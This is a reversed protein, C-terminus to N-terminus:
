LEVRELDLLADIMREYTARTVRHNSYKAEEFSSVIQRLTNPPIRASAGTLLDFIEWPTADHRIPTITRGAEERFHTFVEAIEARYEVVKVTRTTRRPTAEGATRMEVTVTHEGLKPFVRRVTTAGKQFVPQLAEGDISLTLGPIQRATELAKDDVRAVIDFPEGIGWVDPYESKIQPFHISAPARKFVPPAPVPAKVTPAPIPAVPAPAVPRVPRPARGARLTQVTFFVLLGAGVLAAFAPLPPIDVLPLPAYGDLGGAVGQM